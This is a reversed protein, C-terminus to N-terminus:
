LIIDDKKEDEKYYFVHDIHGEVNWLELTSYIRALSDKILVLQREEFSCLLKEDKLQKENLLTNTFALKTATKNLLNGEEGIQNYVYDNFKM